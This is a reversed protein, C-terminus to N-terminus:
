IINGSHEASWQDQHPQNIKVFTKDEWDEPSQIYTEFDITEVLWQKTDSDFILTVTANDNNVAIGIPINEETKFKLELKYDTYIDFSIKNKESDSFKLSSNNLIIKQYSQNVSELYPKLTEFSKITEKKQEESVGTLDQFNLESAIATGMSSFYNSVRSGLYNQFKRDHLYLSSDDLEFTHNDNLDENKSFKTTGFKENTVLYTIRYKGAILPGFKNGKKRDLVENGVTIEIKSLSNEDLTEVNLYKPIPFFYKKKYWKESNIKKFSSRDLFIKRVKKETIKGKLSDQFRDYDVRRVKKQDTFKPCIEKFRSYEDEKLATTLEKIRYNLSNRYGVYGSAFLVLVFSSLIAIM